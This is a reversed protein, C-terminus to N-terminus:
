VVWRHRRCPGPVKRYNMVTIFMRHSANVVEFVKTENWVPHTGKKQATVYKAAGFLTPWVTGYRVTGCQALVVDRLIWSVTSEAQRHTRRTAHCKSFASADSSGAGLFHLMCYPTVDFAAQMASIATGGFQVGGFRCKRCVRRLQTHLRWRPM